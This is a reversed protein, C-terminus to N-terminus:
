ISTNQMQPAQGKSIQSEPVRQLYANGKRDQFNRDRHKKTM